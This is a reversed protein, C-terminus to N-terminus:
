GWSPGDSFQGEHTRGILEDLHKDICKGCYDRENIRRWENQYATIQDDQDKISGLLELCKFCKM